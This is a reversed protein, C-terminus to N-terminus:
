PKNWCLFGEFVMKSSKLMICLFTMWYYLGTNLITEAYSEWILKSRKTPCDLLLITEAHSEWILKSGGAPCDLISSQKLMLNEFELACDLLLITEAHSEWILKSGGAPCDLLLITEAYSELNELSKNPHIWCRINLWGTTFGTSFPQIIEANICLFDDLQDELKIKFM